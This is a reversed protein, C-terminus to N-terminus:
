CEHVSRRSSDSAGKPISTFHIPLMLRLMVGSDCEVFVINIVEIPLCIKTKDNWGFHRRSNIYHANRTFIVEVCNWKKYAWFFLLRSGPEANQHGGKRIHNITIMCAWVIIVSPQLPNSIPISVRM